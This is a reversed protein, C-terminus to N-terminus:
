SEELTINSFIWNDEKKEELCPLINIVYTPVKLPPIYCIFDSPFTYFFFLDGSSIPYSILEERTGFRIEAEEEDNAKLFLQAMWPSFPSMDNHPEVSYGKDLICTTTRIYPIFEKLFPENDLYKTCEEILKQPPNLNLEEWPLIAYRSSFFEKLLTLDKINFKIFGKEQLENWM